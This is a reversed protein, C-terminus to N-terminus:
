SMTEVKKQIHLFLCRLVKELYCHKGTRLYTAEQSKYNLSM